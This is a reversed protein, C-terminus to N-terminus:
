LQTYNFDFEQVLKPMVQPLNEIFNKDSIITWITISSIDFM